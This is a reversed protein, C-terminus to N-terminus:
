LLTDVEVNSSLNSSLLGWRWNHITFICFLYSAKFGEHFFYTACKHIIGYVGMSIERDREFQGVYIYKFGVQNPCM